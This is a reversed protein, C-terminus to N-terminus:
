IANITGSFMGMSCTFRIPGPKEPTFEVIETGTEPLIKQIGLSPVTFARTCGYVGNTVLTLRVPVGARVSMNSPTYSTSTVNISVEQVGNTTAALVRGSGVVPPHVTLTWMIEDGVSSLSIPSGSLVIGNNLALIALALVTYAAVKSFGAQFVDGLKSFGLALISFLPTTGLTFLFMTLAGAFPNGSSIALLMMAQTTGCPILVTSTGLLAPAFFAQSKAENRVLRTVFKPPQLVVYRFIPHIDLLNGVVALMFLGAFIQMAAQMQLTLQVLSGFYGLAAGLITYAVLKSSLFATIAGFPNKSGERKAICTALLGGQVAMCTLGGVTLGTLFIVWYNM